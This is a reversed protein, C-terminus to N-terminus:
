RGRQQKGFIDPWFFSNAYSFVFFVWWRRTACFIIRAGITVIFRHAL